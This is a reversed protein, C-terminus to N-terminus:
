HHVAGGEELLAAESTIPSIVYPGMTAPESFLKPWDPIHSNKSGVLYDIGRHWGAVYAKCMRLSQVLDLKAVYPLPDTIGEKNLHEALSDIFKWFGDLQWSPLYIAARDRHGRAWADRYAERTITRLDQGLKHWGRTEVARIIADLMRRDEATCGCLVEGMIRLAEPDSPRLHPKLDNLLALSVPTALADPLRDHGPIAVEFPLQLFAEAASRTVGYGDRISKIPSAGMATHNLIDFIQRPVPTQDWHKYKREIAATLPFRRWAQLKRLVQDPSRLGSFARLEEAAQIDGPELMEFVEVPCELFAAALKVFKELFPDILNRTLVEDLRSVQRGRLGLLLSISSRLHLRSRQATQKPDFHEYPCKVVSDISHKGEMALRQASYLAQLVNRDHLRKANIYSLRLEPGSALAVLGERSRWVFLSHIPSQNVRAIDIQYPLVLGGTTLEEHLFRHVCARTAERSFAEPFAQMIARDLAAIHDVITHDCEDFRIGQWQEDSNTWAHAGGPLPPSTRSLLSVRTIFLRPLAHIPPMESM